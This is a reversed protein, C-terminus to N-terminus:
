HNTILLSQYSSRTERNRTDNRALVLRPLGSPVDFPYLSRSRGVFVAVDLTLRSDGTVKKRGKGGTGAHAKERPM